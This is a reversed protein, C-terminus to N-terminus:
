GSEQLVSERGKNRGCVRFALTSVSACRNCFISALLSHAVTASNAAASRTFADYALLTNRSVSSAGSM